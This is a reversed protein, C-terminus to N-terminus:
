FVALETKDIFLERVKVHDPILPHNRIVNVCTQVDNKLTGSGELWEKINREPFEPKCHKFLYDFTQINDQLKKDESIKKFIAEINKKNEEETATVFIEEVNEKYVALIIDRMTDSFPSTIPLYSQLVLTNEPNMQSNEKMIREMQHDKGIVFLLKKKKDMAM